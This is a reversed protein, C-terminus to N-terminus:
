TNPSVHIKKNDKRDSRYKKGASHGRRVDRGYYIVRATHTTNRPPMYIYHSGSSLIPGFALYVGM